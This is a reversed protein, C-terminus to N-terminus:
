LRQRGPSFSGLSTPCVGLERRLKKLHSAQVLGRMSTVVPNFFFVLQLALYQDFHLVRNSAKDRQTAHDHVRWLMPLFKLFYKFGQLQDERIPERRASM